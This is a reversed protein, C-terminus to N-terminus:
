RGERTPWMACTLRAYPDGGRDAFWANLLARLRKGQVWSVGSRGSEAADAVDKRGGDGRARGLTRTDANPDAGAAPEIIRRRKRELTM